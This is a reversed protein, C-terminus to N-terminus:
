GVPGRRRREDADAAYRWQRVADLAAQDLMPVSRLVWAEAVHAMRASRRRSSSWARCRRTRRRRRTSRCERQRDETPPRIVGGVRLAGDDTSLSDPRAVFTSLPGPAGSFGSIAQPAGTTVQGTALDFRADVRAIAPAAAPPAFRWQMLASTAAKLMLDLDRAIAPADVAPRRSADGKTAIERLM